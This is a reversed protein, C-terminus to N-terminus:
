NSFVDRSARGSGTCIVAISLCGSSYSPLLHHETSRPSKAAKSARDSTPINNSIQGGHQSSIAALARLLKLPSTTIYTPSARPPAVAHFEKKSTRSSSQTTRSATLMGFQYPRDSLSKTYSLNATVPEDQTSGDMVKIGSTTTFSSSFVALQTGLGVSEPCRRAAADDDYAEKDTCLRLIAVTSWLLALATHEAMAPRTYLSTRSASWLLCRITFEFM